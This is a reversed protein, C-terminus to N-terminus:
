GRCRRYWDEVHEPLGEPVPDLIGAFGRLREDGEEAAAAIERFM